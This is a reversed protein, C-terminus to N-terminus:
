VEKLSDLEAQAHKLAQDAPLEADVPTTVGSDELCVEKTSTDFTIKM